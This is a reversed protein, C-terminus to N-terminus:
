AFASDSVSYCPLPRVRHCLCKVTFVPRLDEFVNDTLLMYLARDFVRDFLVLHAVGVQERTRAAGALGGRSTQQRFGQQAFAARGGLRVARAIVAHHNRVAFMRVDVLQVGRRTRTHLVHALLDDTADLESRRAPAILDIDDVLNVHKRRRREVRQQLRELLRRAVHHEDQGGGIRLLHGLGDMRTALPEVEAADRGLGDHRAQTGNAHGLVHLELALREIQDGM